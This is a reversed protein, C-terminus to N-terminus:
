VMRRQVNDLALLADTRRKTHRLLPLLKPLLQHLGGKSAVALCWSDKNHKTGYRVGAKGDVAFTHPIGQVSLWRCIGRLLGVDYSRLRFRASGGAVMFNGEADTYGAIFALMASDSEQIWKPITKHKEALFNFSNNLSCSINWAGTTLNKKSIWVPGYNKFLNQILESQEKKTTSSSIYILNGKKRVGLDGLRFGVIYAQEEKTGIFDLKIHKVNAESTSRRTIGYEKCKKLIGAASFGYIRGIEALSKREVLYLHDLEEKKLVIEKKKRIPINQRKLHFYVTKPDCEYQKAIAYTSLKQKSYLDVLQRRNIKGQLM